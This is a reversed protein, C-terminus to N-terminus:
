NRILEYGQFRGAPTPMGNKSVIYRDMRLLDERVKGSAWDRIDVKLVKDKSKDTLATPDTMRMFSNRIAGASDFTLRYERCSAHTSSILSIRTLAGELTDRLVDYGEKALFSVEKESPMRMPNVVERAVSLFIKKVDHDVVIYGDTLSVMESQGVRYYGENAKRTYFFDALMNNSSDAYDFAEIRGMISVFKVTDTAHLVKTLDRLIAKQQKNNEKIKVDVKKEPQRGMLRSRLGPIAAFTGVALLIVAVPMFFKIYKMNMKM